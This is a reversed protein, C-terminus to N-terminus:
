LLLMQIFKRAKYGITMNQRQATTEKRIHYEFDRVAKGQWKKYGNGAGMEAQVLVPIGKEM